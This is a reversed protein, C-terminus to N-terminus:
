EAKLTEQAITLWVPFEVFAPAAGGVYRAWDVREAQKLFFVCVCVHIYMYM